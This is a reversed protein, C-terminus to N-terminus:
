FRYSFSFCMFHVFHYVYNVSVPFIQLCISLHTETMIQSIYIFDCSISDWLWQPLLVELLVLHQCVCSAVPSSWSKAPAHIKILKYAKQLITKYKPLPWQTDRVGYNWKQSCEQSIRSCSCLFMGTPISMVESVAIAFILSSHKKWPSSLVTALLNFLNTFTM